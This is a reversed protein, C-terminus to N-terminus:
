CLVTSFWLEYDELLKWMGDLRLASSCSSSLCRLRRRRIPPNTGVCDLCIDEQLIPIAIAELESEVEEDDLVIEQLGGEWAIVKNVLIVVGVHIYDLLM